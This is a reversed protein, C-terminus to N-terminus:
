KEKGGELSKDVSYLLAREIFRGPRSASLDDGDLVSTLFAHLKLAFVVKSM